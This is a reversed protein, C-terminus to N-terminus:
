EGILKVLLEDVRSKVEGWQFTKDDVLGNVKKADGLMVPELRSMVEGFAKGGTYIVHALDETCIVGLDGLHKEILNNDTLVTRSNPVARDRFVAKKHVINFVSKFCPVGWFAFPKVTNLKQVTEEDNLRFTLVHRKTLGLDRLTEKVQRSGGTRGNRCIALVHGKKAPKPKRKKQQTKLRGEDKIRQRADKILKEAKIIRLKGKTHKAKKKQQQIQEARKAQAKLNRDRRRLVTEAVKITEGPRRPQIKAKLNGGVDNEDM